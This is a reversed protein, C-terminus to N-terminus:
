KKIKEIKNMETALAEREQSRAPADNYAVELKSLTKLDQYAKDNKRGGDLYSVRTFAPMVLLREWGEEEDPPIDRDNISALVEKVEGTKKNEWIYTPM